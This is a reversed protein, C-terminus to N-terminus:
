TVNIDLALAITDLRFCLHHSPYHLISTDLIKRCSELIRCQKLIVNVM